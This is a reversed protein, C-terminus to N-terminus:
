PTLQKLEGTLETLEEPTVKSDALTSMMKSRFASMKEVPIGGKKAKAIFPAYAARFEAKQEATVEPTASVLIQEQIKGLAWDMGKTGIFILGVIIIVSLGACGVLGWKMCGSRTRDPIAPPPMTTRSSPDIPPPPITENM